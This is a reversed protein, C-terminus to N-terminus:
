LFAMLLLLFPLIPIFGKLFLYYIIVNSCYSIFYPRQIEIKLIAKNKFILFYTAKNLYLECEICNVWKFYVLWHKKAHECSQEVM